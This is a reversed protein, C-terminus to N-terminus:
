RGTARIHFGLAAHVDALRPDRILPNNERRVESPTMEFRAKFARSFQSNDSFGLRLATEAISRTGTGSGRLERYAADLRRNRVVAAVGGEKAFMRYLHARSVRFYRVLLAPGLDAEALNADIFGLVRRRLVQSLVPDQAPAHRALGSALLMVAGEEIAPVDAPDLDRGVQSLSTIFESLLRTLPLGAKLVTGHLSVGGNLKDVRERPLSVTMTSGDRVRTHLGRALDLVCIDGSSVSISQGECDGELSGTVFLQVMYHDLSSALILRRDRRYEQQNFSTPGVLLSGLPLSRVSGELPTKVGDGSPTTEFFSKTVERWLETRTGPDVMSTSLFLEKAMRLQGSAGQGM